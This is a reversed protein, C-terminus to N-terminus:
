RRNTDQKNAGASPTPECRKESRTGSEAKGNDNENAVVPESRPDGVKPPCKTQDIMM